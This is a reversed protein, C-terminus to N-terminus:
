WLEPLSEMALEYRTAAMYGAAMTVTALIGWLSGASVVSAKPPATRCILEVTRNRYHLDVVADFEMELAKLMDTLDEIEPPAAIVM